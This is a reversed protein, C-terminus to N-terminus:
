LIQSILWAFLGFSVVFATSYVLNAFAAERKIKRKSTKYNFNNKSNM